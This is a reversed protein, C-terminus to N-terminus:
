HVRKLAERKSLTSLREENEAVYRKIEDPDTWSYSRLGWGIAKRLFFEESDLSAEICDYLLQLDTKSKFTRQCIISTRRKWMNSSKSWVLMEKKMKKPYKLLLDGVRCSLDDVHDWWAGSTIMEEYLNLTEPTQFDQVKKHACLIQASYREERYKANQWIYLVTKEWNEKTIQSEDFVKKCIKRVDPMSVGHYPMESKMYSQMQPARQPSGVKVFEKRLTALLSKMESSPILGIV